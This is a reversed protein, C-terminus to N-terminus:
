PWFYLCLVRFLSKDIKMVMEMCLSHGFTGKPSISLLHLVGVESEKLADKEDSGEDSATARATVDHDKSELVDQTSKLGDPIEDEAASPPQQTSSQTQNKGKPNNDQLFFFPKCTM